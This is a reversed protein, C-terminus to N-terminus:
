KYHKEWLLQAMELDGPHTIKPNPWKNQVLYTKKGVREMASVEDTVVEGSEYVKRYAKKLDKLRFIQPTEMSWLCNRDIIDPLTFQGADAKKLTDVVPRACAAAGHIIASEICKGLQEPHLLPRAGDHVAVYDVEEECLLDLGAMVSLYREEGGDARLISKKLADNKGMLASFREENAVLVIRDILPSNNFIKFSAELVTGNGLPAMLKDFGVRRSSGAAVIVAACSAPM